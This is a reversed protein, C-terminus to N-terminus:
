HISFSKSIEIYKINEIFCSFMNVKLKSVIETLAFRSVKPECIKLKM